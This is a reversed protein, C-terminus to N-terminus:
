LVNYRKLIYVLLIGLLVIYIAINGYYLYGFTGGILVIILTFRLAGSKINQHQANRKFSGSIRSHYASIAGEETSDKIREKAKLERKIRETRQEIDEKIPDYYRPNINFRKHSPTRLLSPLKM